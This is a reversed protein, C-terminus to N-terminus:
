STSFLLQKPCTCVERETTLWYVLSNSNQPLKRRTTQKTRCKRRNFCILRSAMSLLRLHKLLLAWSRSCAHIDTQALRKSDAVTLFMKRKVLSGSFEGQFPRRLTAIRQQKNTQTAAQKLDHIRVRFSQMPTDLLAPCALCGIRPRHPLPNEQIPTKRHRLIM